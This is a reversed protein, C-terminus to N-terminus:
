TMDTKTECRRVLELKAREMYRQLEEWRDVSIEWEENPKPIRGLEKDTIHKKQWLDSAKVRITENPDYTSPELALVNMWDDQPATYTFKRAKREFIEKAVDDANSMDWECEIHMQDTVPLEKMVSLPTTIVPVGYSLAENISYCYTEMDNSLQVLYDSDAIYPRIDARREMIVVNPSKPKINTKNTFILWLYHRNHEACYRDLADILQLTRQGGKVKDDLRTASILHVVKEKPELTLPNYCLQTKIPKGIMEGYANLREQSFKSVGIYDTFKPNKIPPIYGLEQYNAHSVFYYHEAVVEDIMDANFNFFANICEVKEGKNRRKCRVFKRLRKVQVPDADDYFITIDYKHYKKAIEYLFQETGGIASIKRFYFINAYKM